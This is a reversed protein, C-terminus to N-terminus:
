HKKSCFEKLSDDISWKREKWGKELVVRNLCEDWTESSHSLDPKDPRGHPWVCFKM